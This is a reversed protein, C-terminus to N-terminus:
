QPEGKMAQDILDKFNTAYYWKGTENIYMSKLTDSFSPKNEAIWEIRKTNLSKTGLCDGQKNVLEGDKEIEAELAQLLMILEPNTNTDVYILEKIKTFTDNMPKRREDIFWDKPLGSEKYVKRM